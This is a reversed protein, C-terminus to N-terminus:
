EGKPKNEGTEKDPKELPVEQELLDALVGDVPIVKEFLDVPKKQNAIVGHTYYNKIVAAADVKVNAALELMKRLTGGVYNSRVLATLNANHMNLHLLYYDDYRYVHLEFLSKQYIDQTAYILNKSERSQDRTLYMEPYYKTNIIRAIDINLLIKIKNYHFISYTKNSEALYIDRPVYYNYYLKHHNSEKFCVTEKFDAVTEAIEGRVDQSEACATLMCLLFVLVVKKM